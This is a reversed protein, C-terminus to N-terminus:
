DIFERFWLELFVLAWLRASRDRRGSQHDEVLRSVLAPIRDILEAPVLGGSSDVEGCIGCM